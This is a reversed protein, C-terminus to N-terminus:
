RLSKQLREVDSVTLRGDRTGCQNVVLCAVADQQDSSMELFVRTNIAGLLDLTTAAKANNYGKILETAQKRENDVVAAYPGIRGACGSVALLAAVFLAIFLFVYPRLVLQKLSQM